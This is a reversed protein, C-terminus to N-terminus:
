FAIILDPKRGKQYTIVENLKKCEWGEALKREM